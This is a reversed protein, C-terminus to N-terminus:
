INKKRQWIGYVNGALAFHAYITYIFGNILFLLGLFIIIGGVFTWIGEGEGTTIFIAGSVVLGAIPLFFVITISLVVIFVRLLNIINEQIFHFVLKFDFVAVVSSESAYRAYFVPLVIGLLLSWAICVMQGVVPIFSLAVAPISFILTILLMLFGKVFHEGFDSFDPYDEYEERSWRKTVRLMYGIVACWGLVPVFCLLCLILYRAFWKKYRFPYVLADKITLREM